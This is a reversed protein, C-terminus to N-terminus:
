QALKANAFNFAGDPAVYVGSLYSKTAYIIQDNGLFLWPAEDWVIKQAKAYLENQKETDATKLGEDLLKDFEENQFYASNANTPPIMTSYLLARMSSDMTFDSASWNVYWMNVEAEEKEVYIKDNRTAEEMPLVEVEIGIQELQQKIFTMGKIEQTTNDGWITLKFGDEYGAEKMLEKAKELDYDYGEQEVYGEIISPVASTAPKAYGSYMLQVFAEKDIAYNMAQRVRVDSLEPILKNLAVFRMINSDNKLINIDEADEVAALQDSTMPYVFDAEGTQLMATRSGAEGVEKVTVSDVGPKEGWYDENKVMKTHSGQEWEVYKFPGTGVPNNMIDNGFEEIAKPSVICFQSLRNLFPSWPETLKFVVTYDDPTEISEVRFSETGDDKTEVFTRRQRLENDKDIVRDYNAKVAEANFDTGDHFKIGENLKFTYTLSDESIEWSKALQGVMKQNEDFKVLNEFMGRTTAISNTDGINAPDLSNISGEIAIVLDNDPSKADSNSATSLKGDGSDTAKKGDDKNGCATLGLILLSALLVFILRKKLKM